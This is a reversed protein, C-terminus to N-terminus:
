EGEEFKIWPLGKDKVKEELNDLDVSNITKPKGEGDYYKYRFTFGQKCDNRKNKYVRFFGTTNRSKSTKRMTEISHEKGYMPYNEGKNHLRHHESNLMAELNLICNNLRNGDKHHIDIQQPLEVEWFREYILRHLRKGNNGEKKSTIVYYGRNGIKANGFITNITENM